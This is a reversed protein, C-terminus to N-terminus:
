SAYRSGINMKALAADTQILEVRVGFQKDSDVYVNLLENNHTYVLTPRIGQTAFHALTAEIDETAFRIHLLGEGHRELHDRHPSEGSVPQLLEIELDGLLTFALRLNIESIKGKYLMGRCAEGIYFPGWGFATGFYEIAADVDHVVISLQNLHTLPRGISSQPWVPKANPFFAKISPPIRDTM